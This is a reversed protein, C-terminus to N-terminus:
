GAPTTGSVSSWWWSWSGAPTSWSSSLLLDLAPRERTPRRNRRGPRSRLYETHFGSL